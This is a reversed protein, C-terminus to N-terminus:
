GTIRAWEWDACPDGGLMALADIGLDAAGDPDDVGLLRSFNESPYGPTARPGNWGRALLARQQEPTSPWFGPGVCEAALYEDLRLFQVYRVPVRAPRRLWGLLGSRAPPQASKSEALVVADGAALTKLEDRLRARISEWSLDSM